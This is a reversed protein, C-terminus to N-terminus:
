SAQLYSYVRKPFHNLQNCFFEQVCHFFINGVSDLKQTNTTIRKNTLIREFNAKMENELVSLVADSKAKPGVVAFIHVMNEDEDALEAAGMIKYYFEDGIYSYSDIQQIFLNGEEEQGSLYIYLLGSSSFQASM